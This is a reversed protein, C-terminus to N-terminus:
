NCPHPPPQLPPKNTDSKTTLKMIQLSACPSFTAHAAVEVTTTSATTGDTPNSGSSDLNNGHRASNLQPTASCLGTIHEEPSYSQPAGLAESNSPM